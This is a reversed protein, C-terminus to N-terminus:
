RVGEGHLGLTVSLCNQCRLDGEDGSKSHEHDGARWTASTPENQAGREQVAFDRYLGCDLRSRPSLHANKPPPQPM